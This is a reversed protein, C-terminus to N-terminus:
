ESLQRRGTPIAALRETAKVVSLFVSRRRPSEVKCTHQALAITPNSVGALLLDMVGHHSSYKLRRLDHCRRLAHLVIRAACVHPCM